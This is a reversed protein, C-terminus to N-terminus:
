SIACYARDQTFPHPVLACPPQHWCHKSFSRPPHCGAWKHGRTALAREQIEASTWSHFGQPWTWLCSFRSWAVASIDVFRETMPFCESLGLWAPLHKAQIDMCVLSAPMQLLQPGLSSVNPWHQCSSIFSLHLPAWRVSHQVRTHTTTPPHHLSLWIIIMICFHLVCARNSINHHRLLSFM